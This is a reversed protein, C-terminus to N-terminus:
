SNPSWGVCPWSIFLFSEQTESPPRALCPGHETSRFAGGLWKATLSGRVCALIRAGLGTARGPTPSWPFLLPCCIKKQTQSKETLRVVRHTRWITAYTLVKTYDEMTQINQLTNMWVTQCLYTQNPNKQQQQKTKNQKPKKSPLVKLKPYITLFLIAADDLIRKNLKQHFFFWTSGVSKWLSHWWNVARGAIPLFELEGRRVLVLITLTKLASSLIYRCRM